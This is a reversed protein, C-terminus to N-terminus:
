KRDTTTTRNTTTRDTTSRTNDRDSLDDRGTTRDAGRVREAEIKMTINNEVNLVGDTNRAIEYAKAKQEDSEVFGSLQVTGKYTNVKVDPFKYVNNADLNGKVRQILVKDDIFQGATRDYKDGDNSTCGVVLVALLGM